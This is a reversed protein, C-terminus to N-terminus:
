GPTFAFPYTVMASSGGGPRPFKWRRVAKRVCAGVKADGLGNDVIAASVVKGVPGISFRVALRGELNPNRTLGQNYCHRVENIHSRVVRRIDDKDITGTVQQKGQRVRPVSPRRKSHGIGGRDGYDDQGTRQKGILGDVKFGITGDANGGGQRGTGEVGLGRVGLTAGVDTGRLGGWIDLDDQGITFAGATPSALFHGSSQPILGLIGAQAAPNADFQRTLQPIARRPGKVAVLAAPQKAHTSGMAGSPGPAADDAKPASDESSDVLEDDVLAPDEDEIEDPQQMYGVYHNDATLEDISMAMADEPVLHLMALLTGLVAFSGANYIWFPKDTESRRATSKGRAVTGIRYTIGEHEVRCRAGDPLVRIVRNSVM